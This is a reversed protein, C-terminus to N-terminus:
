TTEECMTTQTQTQTQPLGSWECVCPSGSSTMACGGPGHGQTAATRAAARECSGQPHARPTRERAVRHDPTAEAETAGAAEIATPRAQDDCQSCAARRYRGPHLGSSWRSRAEDRLGWWPGAAAANPRLLRAASCSPKGQGSEPRKTTGHRQNHSSWFAFGSIRNKRTLSARDVHEALPDVRDHTAPGEPDRPAVCRHHQLAHKADRIPLRARDHTAILHLQPRRRVAPQGRRKGQDARELFPCPCVELTATLGPPLVARPTPAGPRPIQHGARGGQRTLRDDLRYYHGVLRLRLHPADGASFLASNCSGLAAPRAPPKGAATTTTNLHDPM